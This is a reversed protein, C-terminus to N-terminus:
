HVVMKVQQQLRRFAVQAPRHLPEADAGANLEVPAMVPRSVQQLPSELRHDDFIVGTPLLHGAVNVQVRHPHRAQPQALSM